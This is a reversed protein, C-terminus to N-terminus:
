RPVDHGIRDSREGSAIFQELVLDDVSNSDDASAIQCPCFLDAGHRHRLISAKLQAKPKPLVCVAIHHVGVAAHRTTTFLERHTHAAPERIRRFQKATTRDAVLDDFRKLFNAKNEFWVVRLRNCEVPQELADDRRHDFFAGMIPRREADCRFKNAIVLDARATAPDLDITNTGFHIGVCPHRSAIM